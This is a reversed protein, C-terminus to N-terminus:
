AENQESAGLKYLERSGATKHWCGRCGAAPSLLMLLSEAVLRGERQKPENYELGPCSNAQLFCICAFPAVVCHVPMSSTRSTGGFSNCQGPSPHSPISNHQCQLHASLCLFSSQGEWVSAPLGYCIQSPINPSSRAGPLADQLFQSPAAPLPLPARPQHRASSSGRIHECLLLKLTVKFPDALILANKEM